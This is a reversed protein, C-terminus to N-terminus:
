KGEIAKRLTEIDAGRQYRYVMNVNSQGLFTAAARATTGDEDLRRAASQRASHLSVHPVGAGALLDRWAKWDTKHAVPFVFDSPAPENGEVVLKTHLSRLAGWTKTPLPIDRRGAESKPRGIQGSGNRTSQISIWGSELDVLGWRLGLAESQRLGMELACYWRADTGLKKAHALVMDAVRTQMHDRQAQYTAPADARDAPNRRLHGAKVADGLADKLIVFTQRATSVTLGHHPKHPCRGDVAPDPCDITLRSEIQEVQLTTLRELRVNGILPKLYTKIKSRHSKRTSDRLKPKYDDLWEDLWAGVTLIKGSRDEAGSEDAILEDLKTRAEAKTTGYVVRRDRKKHKTTGYNIVGVWRGRCRHKPRESEAAPPCTPHDHRQYLNTTYTM